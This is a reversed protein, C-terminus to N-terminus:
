KSARSTETSRSWKEKWMHAIFANTILDSFNYVFDSFTIKLNEHCRMSSLVLLIRFFFQRFLEIRCWPVANWFDFNCFALKSLFPNLIKREHSSSSPLCSASISWLTYRRILWSAACFICCSISTSITFSLSTDIYEDISIDGLAYWYTQCVPLFIDIYRIYRFIIWISLPVTYQYLYERIWDFPASHTNFNLVLVGFPSSTVQYCLPLIPQICYSLIKIRKEKLKQIFTKYYKIYFNWLNLTGFIACVERFKANIKLCECFKRFNEFSKILIKEFKKQVKQLVNEFLRAFFKKLIEKM